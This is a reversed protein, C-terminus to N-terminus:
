DGECYLFMEHHKFDGTNSNTGMAGPCWQFSCPEMRGQPPPSVSWGTTGQTSKRVSKSTVNAKQCDKAMEGLQWSQDFIILLPRIIVNAIERLVKPHM